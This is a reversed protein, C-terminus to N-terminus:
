GLINECLYAIGAQRYVLDVRVQCSLQLSTIMLGISIHIARFFPVCVATKRSTIMTEFGKLKKIQSKKFCSPNGGKVSGQTPGKKFFLAGINQPASGLPRGKEGAQSRKGWKM